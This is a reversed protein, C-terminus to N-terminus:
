QVLGLDGDLLEFLLQAADAELTFGQERALEIAIRAGQAEGVRACQIIEALPAFVTQLRELKTKDDLNIRRINAPIHVHDALFVLVSGPNPDRAYAALNDPFAGHKKKGRGTEEGGSGRGFLEKVNRVFFVQVPAMLSANRARALLDDLATSALDEDFLSFERLEPPVLLEVLAQRFRDRFFIEDGVLLYIPRLREKRLLPLLNGNGFPKKAAPDTAPSNAALSM